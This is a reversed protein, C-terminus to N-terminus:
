RAPYPQNKVAANHSAFAAIKPDVPTAVYTAKHKRIIMSTPLRAKDFKEKVTIRFSKLRSIYGKSEQIIRRM